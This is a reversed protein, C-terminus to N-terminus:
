ASIETLLVEDDLDVEFTYGMTTAASLEGTGFVECSAIIMRLLVFEVLVEREADRSIVM